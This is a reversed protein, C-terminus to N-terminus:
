VYILAAEISLNFFFFPRAVQEYDHKMRMFCYLGNKENKKAVAAGIMDRPDHQPVM